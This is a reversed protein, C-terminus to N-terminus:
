GSRRSAPPPLQVTVERPFRTPLTRQMEGWPIPCSVAASTLNRLTPVENGVHEQKSGRPFYVNQRALVTELSLTKCICSNLVVSIRSRQGFGESKPVAAYQSLTAARVDGVVVVEGTPPMRRVRGVTSVKRAHPVARRVDGIPVDSSWCAGADPRRRRLEQDRGARTNIGGGRAPAINESRGSGPLRITVYAWYTGKFYILLIKWYGGVSELIMCETRFDYTICGQCARLLRHLMFFTYSKAVLAERPAERGCIICDAAPDGDALHQDHVGAHQVMQQRIRLIVPLESIRQSPGFICSDFRCWNSM